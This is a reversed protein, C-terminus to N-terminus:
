DHTQQAFSQQTQLANLQEQMNRLVEKQEAIQAQLNQEHAQQTSDAATRQEPLSSSTSANNRVTCIGGACMSGQGTNAPLQGAAAADQRAKIAQSGTYYKRQPASDLELQSLGVIVACAVILKLKDM